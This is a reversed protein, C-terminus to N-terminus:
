IDTGAGFSRPPGLLLGAPVHDTSQTLRNAQAIFVMPFEHQPLRAKHAATHWGIRVMEGKCLRTRQASSHAVLEDDRNASDVMALQMARTVLSCPPAREVDIRNWDREPEPLVRPCITFERWHRM